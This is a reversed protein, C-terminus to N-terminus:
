RAAPSNNKKDKQERRTRTFERVLELIVPGLAAIGAAIITAQPATLNQNISGSPNHM